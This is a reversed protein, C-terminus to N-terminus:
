LSSISMVIDVGHEGIIIELINGKETEGINKILVNKKKEEGISIGPTNKKKELRVREQLNVTLRSRAQQLHYIRFRGSMDGTTTLIGVGAAVDTCNFSIIPTVVIAIAILITKIKHM